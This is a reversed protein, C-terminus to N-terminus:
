LLGAPAFISAQNFRNEWSNNKRFEAISEPTTTDALAQSIVKAMDSHRDILYVGDCEERLAMEGFATSVVPLGLARYEYFKIPDVSSTLTTRKFPILGVDFQTMVRLAETHPLPAELYINHPLAPPQVYLPGIFRFRAKPHSKALDIVLKWDFWHGITGVYGLVPIQNDQLRRAKPAEPLRDTACANLVLRVDHALHQMRDQLASSSTLIKSVSKVVKRERIAMALRSWGRYFAPYNDMADYFSSIFFSKSLLRLALMTPKGIGLVTSDNAFHNVMSEVNGWLLGNIASSFPLPEIPLAAPKLVTLWDPINCNCVEDGSKPRPNLMDSLAPFRAPYPDIWLVESGACSHFYRVLEHPRQSFSAWPVPSLYILRM